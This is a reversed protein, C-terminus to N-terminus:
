NPATWDADGRNSGQRDYGAFFSGHAMISWAGRSFHMAHMPTSDPQWSTGSASRSEPIGLPGSMAAMVHAEPAGGSAHEHAEQTQAAAVGFSCALLANVAVMRAAKRM